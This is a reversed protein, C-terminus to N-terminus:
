VNERINRQCSRCYCRAVFEGNPGRHEVCGNEPPFHHALKDANKRNQPKSSSDFVRAARKKYEGKVAYSGGTRAEIYYIKSNSMQRESLVGVV